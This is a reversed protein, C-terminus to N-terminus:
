FQSLAAELRSSVARVSERDKALLFGTVLHKGHALTHKEANFVRTPVLWGDRIPAELRTSLEKFTGSFAGHFSLSVPLGARKAASDHFLVQPTSSNFRFNPDFVILRGDSALGIDLGAIGRFGLVRANEGIATALSRAAEPMARDPDIISGSQKAPASFLQEAGGLCITGAENVAIGACWCISLEVVEEAIVSSIGDRHEMFWARATEFSARDPCHHVAYGWGTATGGSSKLFLPGPPEFRALEEHTLVTRQALHGSTVLKELNGKANLFQYLDPSVLQANDPFRGASLPYPGFLRRGEAILQDAIAEAELQTRYTRTDETVEMGAQRYMALVEPGAGAEHRITTCANLLGPFMSTVTDLQLATFGLMRTQRLDTRAMYVSGAPYLSEPPISPVLKTTM